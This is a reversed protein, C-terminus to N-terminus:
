SKERKKLSRKNACRSIIDTVQSKHDFIKMIQSKAEQMQDKIVKSRQM